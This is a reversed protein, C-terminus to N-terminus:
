EEVSAFVFIFNLNVKRGHFMYSSGTSYKPKRDRHVSGPRVMGLVPIAYVTNAVRWPGSPGPNSDRHVAVFKIKKV